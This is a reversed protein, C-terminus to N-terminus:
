HAVNTLISSGTCYLILLINNLLTWLKCLAWDKHYLTRYTKVFTYYWTGMMITDYLCTWQRSDCTTDICKERWGRSDMSIMLRKSIEFINYIQVWVTKRKSLMICKFKRRSSKEPKIAWKKKNIFLLENFPYVM